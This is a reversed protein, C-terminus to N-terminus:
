LVVVNVMSFSALGRLYIIGIIGQHVKPSRSGYIYM